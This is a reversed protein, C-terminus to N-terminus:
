VHFSSSLKFILSKIIPNGIDNENNIEANALMCALAKVRVQVAFM